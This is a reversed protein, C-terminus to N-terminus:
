PAPTQNLVIGAENGLTAGNRFLLLLGTETNNTLSGFNLLRLQDNGHSALTSTTANSNAFLGFYQEGLPSITIGSLIDGDGGYYFDNAIAVIRMPTFFDKTTMGIQEACLLMVTNASNTAHDTFFAANAEGTALNVVWTFNRGDSVNSFSGDRTVVKYDYHNDRNTDLWIEFSAPANAHTQREWTNIAFALVFSDAEGCFGSPTPYTAYGLYHFDPTPNQKGASGEPLNASDALLAFSTVTTTAVGRNRLQVAGSAAKLTMDGAKRPLVQWALHLTNSINGVETLRIYGDYEFVSLLDGDGGAPGSNLQWNRLLHGDITLTVVFRNNGQAPVTISEPTVLQVAGNQVDDAFRFEPNIQYTLPRPADNRVDVTRTLVVLGETATVDQFGFSLSGSQSAVDWAVAPTTLAPLVRVEGSGIRTIPALTGGFRAAKTMIATEAQNMLAAKIEKASWAPHAQKVLAAAGTVLPTAGSTGGFPTAGVGTGALASVMAGPAAIDPKILNDRLTPGRSSSGVIHGVLALRQAPDFRVTVGNPLAAKLRNADAQSISFGPISIPRLGDDGAAFPDGPATLGVIGVRGGAASINKIKQTFNCSGRDVLVIKGALANGSFAGCGKLNGGAGNGYQVTATITATLPASWPQYATAYVGSITLPATVELLLQYASPVNTQAVALTSPAAAPTGLVYPKDASNGAATVTLVGLTSANEVAQALDDDFASGYPVGLSLNILDVADNFNLDGNPDVAYDMGELLAVGSCSGSISSCVKLAYLAVGPAVGSKGGIIDAVHTGHGRGIGADLPDPDPALAGGGLSGTWVGGVFDYGGVVKATPFTGPEIVTPDNSAFATPDGSGGLEAHLYDIGSDLVAVRVGAGNFGMQQAARAGIYPVTESLALQYNVVPDIAIVAPNTALSALAADNAEVMIANLTKQVSGLVQAQPDVQLVQQILAAQQSKLRAMQGQRAETSRALREAVALPAERLRVVVQKTPSATPFNQQVTRQVTQGSVLTLPAALKLAQFIAPLARNQMFRRQPLTTVDTQVQTAAVQVALVPPQGDTQAIDDEQGTVQDGDSWIVPLFVTHSDKPSVSNTQAQLSRAWFSFLSLILLVLWRKRM